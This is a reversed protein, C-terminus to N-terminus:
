LTRKRRNSAGLVCRKRRGQWPALAADADLGESSARIPLAAASREHGVARL